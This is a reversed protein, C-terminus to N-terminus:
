RFLKRRIIRGRDDHRYRVTAFGESAITPKDDADLYTRKTVLRRLDFEAVETFYGNDHKTPKDDPGFYSRRIENDRGDYESKWGSVGEQNTTRKGDQALFWRRVSLGRDSFKIKAKHYDSDGDIPKDDADFYAFMTMKGRLDYEARITAIGTSIAKGTDDINTLEINRDRSDYRMLQGHKKRPKEKGQENRFFYRNAIERGRPDYVYRVIPGNSMQNAPNRSADLYISETPKGVANLKRRWGAYGYTTIVPKGNEDVFLRSIRRNSRDFRDLYAFNGDNHKVPKDDQDFYARHIENAGTTLNARM